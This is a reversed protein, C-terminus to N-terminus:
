PVEVKKVGNLAKKLLKLDIDDIIKFGLVGVGYGLTYVLLLIILNKTIKLTTYYVSISGFVILALKIVWRYSNLSEGLKLKLYIFM